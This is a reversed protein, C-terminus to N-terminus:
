YRVDTSRGARVRASYRGAEERYRTGMSRKLDGTVSSCYFENSNSNIAVRYLKTISTMSVATVNGYLGLNGLVPGSITNIPELTVNLPTSTNLEFRELSLLSPFSISGITGALTMEELDSLSPLSIDLPNGYTSIRIYRYSDDGISSLQPMSLSSINGQLNIYDAHQLAPFSIDLSIQNVRDVILFRDEFPVYDGSTPNRSVRIHGGNALVPFNMRTMNGTITLSKTDMLSPFDLFSDGIGTFIISTNLITLSPFSVTKLGPVNHIEIAHTNNLDPVEISTLLPTPTYRAENYYSEEDYFFPYTFIGGSITTVNPLYFRGTYDTAIKVAGQIETCGAYKADAEAQNSVVTMSPYDNLFDCVRASTGQVALALVLLSAGTITTAFRQRTM